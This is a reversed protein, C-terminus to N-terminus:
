PERKEWWHQSGFPSERVRRVYGRYETGDAVGDNADAAFRGPRFERGIRYAGGVGVSGSLAKRRGRSTAVPRRPVNTSNVRPAVNGRRRQERLDSPAAEIRRGDREFVLTDPDISRLVYDGIEEGPAIWQPREGSVSKLLAVPGDGVNAIGLLAPLPEAPPEAADLAVADIDSHRDPSFLLQRAIVSYDSARVKPAARLSSAALTETQLPEEEFLQSRAAARSYETRFAWCGWALVAALALDIWRLRRKM